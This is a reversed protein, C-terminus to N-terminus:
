FNLDNDPGPMLDLPPLTGSSEYVALLWALTKDVYSQFAPEGVIHGANRLETASKLASMAAHLRDKKAFSAKEAESYRGGASPTAVTATTAQPPVYPPRAVATPAQHPAAAAQAPKERCGQVPCALFAAYARGTTKSVGAPVVRWPAQHVPCANM